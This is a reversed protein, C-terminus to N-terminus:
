QLYFIRQYIRVQQAAAQPIGATQAFNSANISAHWTSLIPDIASSNPASSTNLPITQSGTFDPLASILNPYKSSNVLKQSNPDLVGLAVIVAYFNQFAQTGPTPPTSTIEVTSDDKRLLFATEMRFVSSSILHFDSSNTQTIAPAGLSFTMETWQLGQGYRQLGNLQNAPLDYPNAASTPIQYSVLSLNSESATTAAASPFGPTESYFTFRDNNAQKTFNFGVDGRKLMRGFDLQMRDFVM